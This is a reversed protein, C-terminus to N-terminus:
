FRCQLHPVHLINPRRTDQASRLLRTSAIDQGDPIFSYMTPTADRAPRQDIRKLIRVGFEILAFPTGDRYLICFPPGFACELCHEFMSELDLQFM